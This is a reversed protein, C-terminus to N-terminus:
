FGHQECWKGITDAFASAFREAIHDHYRYRNVSVAGDPLEWFIEPVTDLFEAGYQKRYTEDFDDTYPLQCVKKEEAFGLTTKHAFQPEDTFIAPVTKGFEDGIEKYYAEHTVEIFRQVAKPNLTDLYAQDNFWGSDPM